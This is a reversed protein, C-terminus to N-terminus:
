SSLTSQPLQLCPRRFRVRFDALWSNVPPGSKKTFRVTRPILIDGCPGCRGASGGSVCKSQRMERDDKLEQCYLRASLRLRLLQRSSCTSPRTTRVFFLVEVEAPICFNAPLCFSAGRRVVAWLPSNSISNSGDARCHCKSMDVM